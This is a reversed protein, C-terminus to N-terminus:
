HDHINRFASLQATDSRRVLVFRSSDAFMGTAGCSGFSAPLTGGYGMLLPLLLMTANSRLENRAPHERTRSGGDDEMTYERMVSSLWRHISLSRHIAITSM